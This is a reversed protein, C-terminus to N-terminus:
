KNRRGNYGGLMWESDMKTLFAWCCDTEKYADQATQRQGHWNPTFPRPLFLLLSNISPIIGPPDLHDIPYFLLIIIFYIFILLLNLLSLVIKTFFMSYM